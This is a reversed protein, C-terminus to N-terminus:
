GGPPPPRSRAHRRRWSRERWSAIRAPTPSSLFFSSGVAREFAAEVEPRIAETIWRLRRVRASIRKIGDLNDRIPQERPIDSLAGFLTALFGPPEAEGGEGAGTLKVSKMGPKPDIYVFRRDVERRSPRKELAAVAPGFPRNHLVSGDILIAQEADGMAPRLPMARALFADRSPWSQGRKELCADLESVRFPPFAGPFSATARAAYVLEAPDAIRGGAGGPDQFGIILRDETEIVESPSNLRLNEPYGDLDTVTALLDLRQCEPLLPTGKPGKAMAEFADLLLDTLRTGGFPPQMW